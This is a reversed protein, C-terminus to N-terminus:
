KRNREVEAEKPASRFFWRLAERAPGVESAALHSEHSALHQKVLEATAPAHKIKCLRLFTLIERTHSAKVAPTLNSLALAAKWGPFSVPQKQNM